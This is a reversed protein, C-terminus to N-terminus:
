RRETQDLTRLLKTVAGNFAQQPECYEMIRQHNEQSIRVVRDKHEAMRITVFTAAPVTYLNARERFL